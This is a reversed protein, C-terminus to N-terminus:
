VKKVTVKAGLSKNIVADDVMIVARVFVTYKGTDPLTVTINRDTGDTFGLSTESKDKNV